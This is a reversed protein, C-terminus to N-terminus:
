WQGLSESDFPHDYDHPNFEREPRNNLWRQSAPSIRTTNNRKKPDVTNWYRDKCITGGKTKCFSQQYNTKVFETNCSPCVCNGGVKTEKNHNYRDKMKLRTKM